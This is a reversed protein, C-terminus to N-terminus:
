APMAGEPQAADKLKRLIEARVNRVHQMGAADAAAEDGAIVSRGILVYDRLRLKQLTSFRHQAYVIPMQISPFLRRLELSGSAELLARYFNRRARGFAENDQAKEAARLHDLAQAITDAAKGAAIGRAASRALLGTMREAVELVDLTQQVSLSKIAVGRHRFTDVIGDAALRQLAERVSNRGVGFQAALDVEVLRQGPVFRQAELGTLVGYFITDSASQADGARTEPSPSAPAPPRTM